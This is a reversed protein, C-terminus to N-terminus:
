GDHCISTGTGRLEVQWFIPVASALLFVLVFDYGLAHCARKQVLFAVKSIQLQSDLAGAKFKYVFDLLYLAASSEYTFEPFEGRV